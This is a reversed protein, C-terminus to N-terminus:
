LVNTLCYPITSVACKKCVTRCFRPKSVYYAPKPSITLFLVEILGIFPYSNHSDHDGVDQPSM